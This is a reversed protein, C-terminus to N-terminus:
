KLGSLAGMLAEQVPPSALNGMHGGEPFIKLRSSPLTSELWAIDRPELLFDNRNIVVRVKQQARLSTQYTRLDLERIFQSTGIGKSRFYPAAFKNFYDSFSYDMIEHYSAERRWTSLPSRLIGMNQRSQSSYITDRLTLRFSLAVLYQSEIAEFPAPRSPSPPLTLLKAAKHISNNVRAQRQDAPWGLPAKYYRDLREDCGQLDVPTDIAVYRDFRLLGPLEQKERAALYLSQFGGMSVGLFAKKGFRGPYKKELTRDIETLEVLLDNCDTPPYGPLAATSAREMFEPHFTGTTTVVSFGNQYLSEAVFLSQSSQRHSGLGPAIYVLPSSRPQIWCNFKMDRGTSPLHVCMDHGHRLFEPDKPQLLTAGMTQLTSLDKPGTSTWDPAEDKSSYTWAYKVGAYSDTESRIFRVTEEMRDSLDNYVTGPSVLSYPYFYTWPEAAKDCLIGIAHSPDSPGLFPLMVFNNSQWGWRSFTQGFDADSKPLNWRSAVDFFGGIGVTTNCLFRLSEDGAGSWRGQLANNLLRGPYAINRTFNRISRRAPQPVVARYARATPLLVGIALGQNAAWIGRNVPELPDAIFEPYSSQGTQSGKASSAPASAAAKRSSVTSSCSVAMIPLFAGLPLWLRTLIMGFIPVFGHPMQYKM